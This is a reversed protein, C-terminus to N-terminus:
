YRLILSGADLPESPVVTVWNNAQLLFTTTSAPWLGAAIMAALNTPDATFVTDTLEASILSITGLLMGTPAAHNIAGQVFAGNNVNHLRLSITADTGTNGYRAFQFSSPAWATTHPNFAAGMTGTFPILMTKRERLPSDNESEVFIVVRGSSPEATFDVTNLILTAIASGDPNKFANSLSIASATYIPAGPSDPFQLKISTGKINLLRRVLGIDNHRRAHEAFPLVSTPVKMASGGFVGSIPSGQLVNAEPAMPLTLLMNAGSQTRGTYRYEQGWAATLISTQIPMSTKYSERARRGYVGIFKAFWTLTIREGTDSSHLGDDIKPSLVTMQVPGVDAAGSINWTGDLGTTGTLQTGVRAGPTVGVGSLYLGNSLGGQLMAGPAVTLVNSAVTGTFITQNAVTDMCNIRHDDCRHLAPNLRVGPNYSEAPDFVKVRPHRNEWALYGNRIVGSWYAANEAANAQGWTAADAAWDTTFSGAVFDISSFPQPVWLIITAKPNVALLFGIAWRLNEAFNVGSVARNAPSNADNIGLRIVIVDLDRFQWFNCPASVGTYDQPPITRNAGTAAKTNNNYGSLMQGNQAMNFVAWKELPAGPGTLEYPLNTYFAIRGNMNSDGALGMSGVEPLVIPNSGGADNWFILPTTGLTIADTTLCRFFRGYNSQGEMVFCSLNVVEPSSDADAARVWAGASAIRIGNNQALFQDKVLVRDGDVLQVGDVVQLGSLAPLDHTTAVRVPSKYSPNNTTTGLAINASNGASAAANESATQAAQAAGASSAASNAETEARDAQDEAEQGAAEIAALIEATPNDTIDAWELSDIDTVGQEGFLRIFPVMYRATAPWTATVGIGAASSVVATVEIRGDVIEPTQDSLVAQSIQAKNKTLWQVGLRVTDGAPDDPDTQRAFSARIRYKRGAVLAIRERTGITAPAEIRLVAGQADTTTATGPADAAADAAGTLSSTFRKAVDGPRQQTQVVTPLAAAADDVGLDTKLQAITRNAWAGGKRQLVDDNSPNLAAIAALDADYAQVNTGIVLGALARLGAADAVELVSRGFATTTLAALSALGASYGQVNTGIVLGLTARAAAADADDLLARAFATIDTTSFTDVGTAYILKDATAAVAALASLTADFAQVNTGITLGLTARATAADGDDLISRAFATLDATAFTDVGTSYILKNAATVVSALATLTADFAQVNTGITVGLTARATAADGDDLISRAFATLDSTALAGPGTAYILKNAALVLAALAGLNANAGSLLEAAAEARQAAKLAIRTDPGVFNLTIADTM